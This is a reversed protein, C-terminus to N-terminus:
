RVKPWPMPEGSATSARLARQMVRMPLWRPSFMCLVWTCSRAWARSRPASSTTTSGRKEVTAPLALYQSGMLGPVSMARSSAQIFTMMVSPSYSLSYMALYAM